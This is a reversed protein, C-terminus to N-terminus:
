CSILHRNNNRRNTGTQEHKNASTSVNLHGEGSGGVEGEQKAWWATKIAEGEGAQVQKCREPLANIAVKNCWLALNVEPM